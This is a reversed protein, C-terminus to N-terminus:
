SQPFSKCFNRMKNQKTRNTSQTPKNVTQLEITVKSTNQDRFIRNFIEDLKGIYDVM